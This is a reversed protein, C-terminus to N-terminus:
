RLPGFHILVLVKLCLLLNVAATNSSFGDKQYCNQSGILFLKKNKFYASFTQILTVPPTVIIKYKNRNKDKNYFINIKKLINISTPVGFMKKKKETEIFYKM